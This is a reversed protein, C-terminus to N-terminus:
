RLCVSSGTYWAVGVTDARWEYGTGAAPFPPPPRSRASGSMGAAQVYKGGMGETRFMSAVTAASNVEASAARRLVRLWARPSHSAFVRLLPVPVDQVRGPVGRALVNATHALVPLM